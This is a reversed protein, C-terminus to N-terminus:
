FLIPVGTLNYTYGLEAETNSCIINTLLPSTGTIDLLGRGSIYKGTKGSPKSSYM